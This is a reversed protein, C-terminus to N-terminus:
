YRLTECWRLRASADTVKLTVLAGPALHGFHHVHFGPAIGTDTWNATVGGTTIMVEVTPAAAATDVLYEVVAGRGGHEGAFNAAATSSPDAELESLLVLGPQHRHHSHHGCDDPDHHSM